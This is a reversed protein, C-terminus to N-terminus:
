GGKLISLMEEKNGEPHTSDVCGRKVLNRRFVLFSPLLRRSYERNNEIICLAVNNATVDRNTVQVGRDNPSELEFKRKSRLKNAEHARAM